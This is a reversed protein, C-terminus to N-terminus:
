HQMCKFQSLGGGMCVSAAEIEHIIPPVFAGWRSLAKAVVIFASAAIVLFLDINMSEVVAANIISPGCEGWQLCKWNWNRKQLPPFCGM